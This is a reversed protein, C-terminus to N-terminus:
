RFTRDEPSDDGLRFNFVSLRRHQLIGESVDFDEMRFLLSALLRTVALSGALGAVMGVVIPRMGQRVILSLITMRDAGLAVRIGIEATRRTVSYTLVGYIGTMSLLLAILAFASLLVTNLQKSGLSRSVLQDMTEM